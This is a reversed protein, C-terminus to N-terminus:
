FPLNNSDNEPEVGNQEAEEFREDTYTQGQVNLSGNSEKEAQERMYQEEDQTLDQKKEYAEYDPQTEAKEQVDEKQQSKYVKFYEQLKIDMEDALENTKKDPILKSFVPMKYKVAGKEGDIFENEIRVGIKDINNKKCFDLWASFASRAFKFCVLEMKEGKLMAYITKTFKGGEAKIDNKIDDYIGTVILGGKFSRVRLKEDSLMHIENSYINSKSPEHWGTITTLQDLVLFHVPLELMITEKKEKDYYSFSGEGGNFEIFKSAPNKLKPNSRSM